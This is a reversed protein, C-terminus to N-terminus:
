SSAPGQPPHTEDTKQREAEFDLLFARFIRVASGIDSTVFTEVTASREIDPVLRLTFLTRDSQLVVRVLCIATRREASTM